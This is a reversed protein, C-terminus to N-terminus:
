GDHAENQEASGAMLGWAGSRRRLRRGYWHRHRRDDSPRNGDIEVIDPRGFRDACDRQLRLHGAIKGLATGRIARIDLLSLQEVLNVWPIVLGREALYLGLRLM